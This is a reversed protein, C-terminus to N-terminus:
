GAIPSRWPSRIMSDPLPPLRRCNWTLWQLRGGQALAFARLAWATLWIQTDFREDAARLMASTITPLEARHWAMAADADAFDVVVAGDVPVATPTWARPIRMLVSAAWTSHFYHDLLRQLALRPQDEGEILQTAYARLLDHM